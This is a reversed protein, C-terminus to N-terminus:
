FYFKAAVQLIRQSNARVANLAGFGFQGGTGGSATPLNVIQGATNFQIATNFSAFEAHNYAELRLQIYRSEAKGLPIKKFLSMDWNQLGPGRISNIGSDAGVSGKQAPAFCAVNVFATRTGSGSLNPNCTEVVRPAVDYSGTIEQNLVTSGVGTVSYTVNVPAGGSMSTLGSLQWGNLIL